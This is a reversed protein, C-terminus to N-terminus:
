TAGLARLAHLLADPGPLLVVADPVERDQHDGRAHVQEVAVGALQRGQDPLHALRPAPHRQDDDVREGPRHGAVLVRGVVHALEDGGAAPQALGALRVDHHHVV